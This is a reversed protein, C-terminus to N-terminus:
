EKKGKVVISLEIDDNIYKEGLNDFFSKSGYKVNWKSRDISFTESEVKVSDDTHLVSVTFTVNNTTDKLTLNGSLLTKNNVKEFDTIKFTAIPYKQVDFFDTSKLHKELRANAESDKLSAIDITFTGSEIKGDNITLEGHSFNITGTHSGTPKYGSWIITSEETSVIFKNSTEKALNVTEAEKTEAEKVKDRCSTITFTLVIIMLVFPLKNKM